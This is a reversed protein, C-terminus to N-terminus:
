IFIKGEAQDSVAMKQQVQEAVVVSQKSEWDKHVTNAITDLRSKAFNSMKVSNLVM